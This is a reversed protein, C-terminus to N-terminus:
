PPNAPKAKSGSGIIAGIVTGIGPLVTGDVAGLLAKWFSSKQSLVKQMMTAGLTAGMIAGPIGLGVFWFVMKTKSMTCRKVMPRDMGGTNWAICWATKLGQGTVTIPVRGM